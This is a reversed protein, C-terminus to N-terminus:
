ASVASTTPTWSQEWHTGMDINLQGSLWREDSREQAYDIMLKTLPNEPIIDEILRDAFRSLTDAIIDKLTVM